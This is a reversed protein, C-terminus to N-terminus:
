KRPHAGAYNKKILDGQIYNTYIQTTALDAHGMMTQVAAIDAGGSILHAAFSHRLTHPTIEAEIGAKKGYHKVIKWFGQRSMVKGNCNTFLWESENGKLLVERAHELYDRIALMATKGFPIMREKHSDRCTIFGIQVNIDTMKLNVLESVRIGTAYLLELMAKDRIEKPGNTTSQSLFRDVEEPTLIVPLKKEIKPTKLFEAPDKKIKGEKFEFHFFSKISAVIRSITTTAKGLKELQLIYSNLSTKTVKSWETIELESLYAELQLLDRRYSVITNKSAGKTDQLYETFAQIETIM